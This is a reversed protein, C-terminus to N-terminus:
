NKTLYSFYLYFISRANVWDMYEVIGWLLLVAFAIAVGKVGTEFSNKLLIILL